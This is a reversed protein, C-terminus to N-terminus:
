LEKIMFIFLWVLLPMLIMLYLLGKTVKIRYLFPLVNIGCGDCLMIFKHRIPMFREQKYRNSMDFNSYIYEIM